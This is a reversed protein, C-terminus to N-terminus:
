KKSNKSEEKKETEKPAKKEAELAEKVIVGFEEPTYTKGTVSGLKSLFDQLM